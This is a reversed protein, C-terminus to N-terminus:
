MVCCVIVLGLVLQCFEKSLDFVALDVLDFPILLESRAARLVLSALTGICCGEWM